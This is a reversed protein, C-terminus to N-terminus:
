QFYWEIGDLFDYEELQVASLAFVFINFFFICLGCMFRFLKIFSLFLSVICQITTYVFRTYFKKVKVNNDRDRCNDVWQELVPSSAVNPSQCGVKQQQQIKANM